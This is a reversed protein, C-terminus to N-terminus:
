NRHFSEPNDMYEATPDDPQSLKKLEEASIAPGSPKIQTQLIPHPAEHYQQSASTDGVPAGPSANPKSIQVARAAQVARRFNVPDDMFNPFEIGETGTGYMKVQGYNFIRGLITQDVDAGDIFDVRMEEVKRSILGRKFVVRRNTVGMETTIRVLIRAGVQIIAMLFLLFAATRVIINTHWIAKVYDSFALESAAKFIMWPPVKVIDYYHYIVGVFLVAVAAVVFFFASFVSLAVYIWHYQTFKLIKEGPALSEQIYLM